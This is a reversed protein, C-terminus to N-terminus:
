TVLRQLHHRISRGGVHMHSGNLLPVDTRAVGDRVLQATALRRQEAVLDVVAVAAVRLVQVTQQHREFIVVLEQLGDLRLEDLHLLFLGVVSHRLAFCLRLFHAKDRTKESRVNHCELQPRLM